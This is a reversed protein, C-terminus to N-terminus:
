DRKRAARHWDAMIRGKNLAFSTDAMPLPGKALSAFGTSRDCDM